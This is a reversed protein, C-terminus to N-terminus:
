RNLRHSLYSEPNNKVSSVVRYGISSSKNPNFKEVANFIARLLSKKKM